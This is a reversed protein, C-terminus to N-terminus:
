VISIDFKCNKNNATFCETERVIVDKKFHLRVLSELIGSDLYCSVKGDKPLLECEYCETAIVQMQTIGTNNDDDVLIDIKGLGKEEWFDILNELFNLDDEEELEEFLAEGIKVGTQYLLPDINFGEKILISRLTHFMLRFFEFPDNSGLFNEYLFDTEQEKIHKEEENPSLEGLYRSKLYFIKKRQDSPHTRFGIIDENTLTKLHASVTSKSRKSIRVLDDFGIEGEKLSSLIISKVPSKIVNLGEKTSFIKIPKNNNNSNKKFDYAGM